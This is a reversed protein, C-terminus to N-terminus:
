QLFHFGYYEFTIRIRSENSFCPYLLNIARQAKFPSKSHSRRSLQIGGIIGVYIQQILMSTVQHDLPPVVHVNM